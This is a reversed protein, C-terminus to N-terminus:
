VSPFGSLNAPPRHRYVRWKGGPRDLCVGKYRSKGWARRNMQSQAHTAIRLNCRRNNLKDHNIHDIDFGPLPRMILRRMYVWRSRGIYGRAVFTGYRTRCALWRYTSVLEYDDADVLAFKRHTLPVERTDM